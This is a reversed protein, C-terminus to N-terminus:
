RWWAVVEFFIIVANRGSNNPPVKYRRMTVTKSNSGDADCTILYTKREEADEPTRLPLQWTYAVKSGDSSWCYGHTHGPKGVPTRKKTCLEIVQLRAPSSGGKPSQPGIMCLIRKGDPSLRAGYAEEHDFTIFEPEGTGDINVWEVRVADSTRRSQLLRKGDASWDSPWWEDPLKLETLTKKTM